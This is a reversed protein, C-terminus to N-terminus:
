RSCFTRPSRSPPSGAWRACRPAGRSSTPAAASPLKGRTWGPSFRPTHHATAPGRAPTCAPPSGSLGRSAEVGSPLRRPTRHLPRPGQAHRWAPARPPMRPSALGGKRGAAAAAYFFAGNHHNFIDASPVVNYFHQPTQVLAVRPQTHLYPLTHELFDAHPEQDCDLVVLVANPAPKQPYLVHRLTYNLNGAKGHHPKVKPRSVYRARAPPALAALQEARAPKAGDDLLWVTVHAALPHHLALAARVTGLILEDPESCCPILVAVDYPGEFSSPEADGNLDPAGAGDADISPPLPQQSAWPRRFRLVGLLLVCCAGYLECACVFAQYVRLGEIHWAISCCWRYSFYVPLSGAYLLVAARYTNFGPEDAVPPPEPARGILSSGAGSM